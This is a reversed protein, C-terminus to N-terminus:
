YAYRSREGEMAAIYNREAKKETFIKVTIKRIHKGRKYILNLRPVIDAISIRYFLRGHAIISKVRESYGGQLAAYM